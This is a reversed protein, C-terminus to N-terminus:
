IALLIKLLLSLFFFKLNMLCAEMAQEKAKGLKIDLELNDVVIGLNEWTKGRDYSISSCIKRNYKIEPNDSSLNGVVIYSNIIHHKSEFFDLNSCIHNPYFSISVLNDLIIGENNIKSFNIKKSKNM